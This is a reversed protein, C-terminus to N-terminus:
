RLKAALEDIKFTHTDGPLQDLLPQLRDWPLLFGSLTLVQRGDVMGLPSKPLLRRREDRSRGIGKLTDDVMLRQSRRSTPRLLVRWGVTRYRKLVCEVRKPGVIKVVVEAADGLLDFGFPTWHEQLPETVKNGEL